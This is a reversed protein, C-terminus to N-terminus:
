LRHIGAAAPSPWKVFLARGYGPCVEELSSLRFGAGRFGKELTEAHFPKTDPGALPAVLCSPMTVGPLGARFDEVAQEWGPFLIVDELLFLAGPAFGPAVGQLFEWKEAETLYSLANRAHGKTFYARELTMGQFAFQEVWANPVSQITDRAVAVLYPSIDVGWAEHVIKAAERVLYGCGCGFDILRDTECLHLPRLSRQVEAPDYPWEAVFLRAQEPACWNM